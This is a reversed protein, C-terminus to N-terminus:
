LALYRDIRKEIVALSDQWFQPARLDIGFRAALDAPAAQGTAALLANYDPV